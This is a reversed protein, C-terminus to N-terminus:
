CSSGISHNSELSFVVSAEEITVFRSVLGYFVEDDRHIRIRVAPVQSSYCGFQGDENLDVADIKVLYNSPDMGAKVLVAAVVEKAATCSVQSKSSTIARGSVRAADIIRVQERFALGFVVIAGVILIFLPVVIALEVVSAGLQDRRMDRVM